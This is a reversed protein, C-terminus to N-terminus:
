LDITEELFKIVDHVRCGYCYGADGDQWHAEEGNCSDDGSVYYGRKLVWVALKLITNELYTMM